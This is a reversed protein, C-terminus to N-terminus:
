DLTSRKFLALLIRIKDMDSEIDNVLHWHEVEKFFRRIIRKYKTGRWKKFQEMKARYFSSNEKQGEFLAEKKVNEKMLSNILLQNVEVNKEFVKNKEEVLRKVIKKLEMLFYLVKNKQKEDKWQIELLKLLLNNKHGKIEIREKIIQKKVKLNQLKKKFEGSIRRTKRPDKLIEEKNDIKFTLFLKEELLSKKKMLRRKPKM